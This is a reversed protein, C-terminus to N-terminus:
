MPCKWLAQSVGPWPPAPNVPSPAKNPFGPERFHVQDDIMGPLLHKGQADIVQAGAPATIQSAIQSIRGNDILLDQTRITGENVLQANCILTKM